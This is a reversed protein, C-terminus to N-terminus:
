GRPEKRRERTPMGTEPPPPPTAAGRSSSAPSPSSPASSRPGPPAGETSRRAAGRFAFSEYLFRRNLVAGVLMLVAGAIVVVTGYRWSDRGILAAAVCFLGLAVAVQGARNRQARARRRRESQVGAGGDPLWADVGVWLGFLAVIAGLIVPITELRM